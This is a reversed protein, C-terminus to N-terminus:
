QREIEGQHGSASRMKQDGGCIKWRTRGVFFTERKSTKRELEKDSKRENLEAPRNGAKEREKDREKEINWIQPCSM